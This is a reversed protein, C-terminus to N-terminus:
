TKDPGVEPLKSVWNRFPKKSEIKFGIESRGSYVDQVDEHELWPFLVLWSAQFRGEHHSKVKKSASEDEEQRAAPRKSGSTKAFFDAISKQAM